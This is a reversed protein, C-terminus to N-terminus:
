AGCAHRCVFSWAAIWLKCRTMLPPVGPPVGVVVGVGEAAEAAAAAASARERGAEPPARAKPFGWPSALLEPPAPGLLWGVV